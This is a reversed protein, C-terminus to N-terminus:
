LDEGPHEDPGLVFAIWLMVPATALAAGGYFALLMHPALPGFFGALAALPVAVLVYVLPGSENYVQQREPDRARRLIM